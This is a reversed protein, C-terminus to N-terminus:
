ATAPASGAVRGALWGGLIAMVVGLLAWVSFEGFIASSLLVGGTIIGVMTANGQPNLNGKRAAVLGGLFAGLVAFLSNIAIAYNDAFTNIAEADPAGQAQVALVGSYATVVCVSSMFTILLAITVGVTVWIWSVNAMRM